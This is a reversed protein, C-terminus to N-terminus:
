LQLGRLSLAIGSLLLFGGVVKNFQPTSLGEFVRLGVYAGLVAPLAFKIVDPRLAQGRQVMTLAALILIQMGLIFPQYIARQREKEWGHAGCWITVFAAPFAATAGTIGGLAGVAVRGILSDRKLRLPPRVLMFSAYAVLFVGLGLLHIAVPTNLFLYIGPAVTLLGGAFYPILSRAEIARRLKWVSYSQLAISAALIVQLAYIKDDTVQFLLAGSIGAFAFGAISSVAASILVIIWVGLEVSAPGYIARIYAASILCAAVVLFQVLDTQKM